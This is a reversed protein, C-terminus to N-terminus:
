FAKSFALPQLALAGFSHIIDYGYLAKLEQSKLGLNGTPWAICNQAEVIVSMKQGVNHHPTSGLIASGIIV